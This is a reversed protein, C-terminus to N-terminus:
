TRWKTGDDGEADGRARLADGPQGLAVDDVGAQHGVRHQASQEGRAMRQIRVSAAVQDGDRGRLLLVAAHVITTVSRRVAEKSQYWVRSHVGPCSHINGMSCPFCRLCPMAMLVFTTDRCTM